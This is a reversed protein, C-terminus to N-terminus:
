IRMGPEPWFAVTPADRLRPEAGGYRCLHRAGARRARVSSVCGGHRWARCTPRACRFGTWPISCGAPSRRWLGPMSQPVVSRPLHHGCQRLVDSQGPADRDILTVKVRREALALATCIGVM